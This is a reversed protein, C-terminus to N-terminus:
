RRVAVAENTTFTLPIGSKLVVQYGKSAAVVGTAVGAGAVGGIVAGKGSGGVARGILAGAVGSAAIAGLNRARPSGAIVAETSGHVRYSRDGVTISTLALDLMATDGKRAPTVGSVTGAVTSGAPVLNKGDVIATNRVSGSWADGVHATESTLSTGLTVDLSTGSPLTLSSFSATSVGSSNTSASGATNDGRCGVLAVVALLAVGTILHLHRM